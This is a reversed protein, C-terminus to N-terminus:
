AFRALELGCDDDEIEVHREHVSDVGPAANTAQRPHAIHAQERERSAATLGVPAFRTSRPETMVEYLGHLRRPQQRQQPGFTRTRSRLTSTFFKIAAGRPMRWCEERM